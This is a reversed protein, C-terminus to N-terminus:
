KIIGLSPVVEASNISGVVVLLDSCCDYVVNMVPRPHYVVNMVPHPHYVVYM